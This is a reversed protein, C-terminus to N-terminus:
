GNHLGEKKESLVRWDEENINLIKKIQELENETLDKYLVMTCDKTFIRMESTTENKM